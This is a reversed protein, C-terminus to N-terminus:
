YLVAFSDWNQGMAAVSANKHAKGMKYPIGAPKAFTGDARDFVPSRPCRLLVANSRNRSLYVQPQGRLDLM